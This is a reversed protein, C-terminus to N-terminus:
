EIVRVSTPYLYIYLDERVNRPRTNVYLGNEQDYVFTSIKLYDEMIDDGGDGQWGGLSIKYFENGGETEDILDIYVRREYFHHKDRDYDDDGYHCCIRVKQWGPRINPVSDASTSM